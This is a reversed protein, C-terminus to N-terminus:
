GIVTGGPNCLNERGLGRATLSAVGELSGRRTQMGIYRCGVDECARARISPACSDDGRPTM